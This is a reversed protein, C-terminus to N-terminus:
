LSEIVFAVFRDVRDPTFFSRLKANRKLIDEIMSRIEQEESQVVSEMTREIDEMTPTSRTGQYHSMRRNFQDQPNDMTSGTPVPAPEVRSTPPTSSTPTKVFPESGKDTPITYDNFNITDSDTHLDNMVGVQATGFFESYISPFGGRSKGMFADLMSDADFIAEPRLDYIFSVCDGDYGPIYAQVLANGIDYSKRLISKISEGSTNQAEIYPIFGIQPELVGDPRRNMDKITKFDLNASKCFKKFDEAVYISDEAGDNFILFPKFYLANDVISKSANADPSTINRVTENNLSDVYAFNRASANLRTYAKSDKGRYAEGTCMYHPCDANYGFFADFGLSFLKKYLVDGVTSDMINANTARYADKASSADKLKQGIVFVDSVDQETGGGVLGKYAWRDCITSLTKNISNIMDTSYCGFESLLPNGSKDANGKRRADSIASASYFAGGLVGNPKLINSIGEDGATIEDIVIVVGDKGGLRNYLNPITRVNGRVYILCLCFLLARLYFLTSYNSYTEGLESLMFKPISRSWDFQEPSSSKFYSDYTADYDGNICFMEGGSMGSSRFMSAMDPKNDLYFIPKGSAIAGALINLTMVGKGSRSGACIFHCLKRNFQIDGGLTLISDDDKKGLIISDWEPISKGSSLLSNLARYAFLPEGNVITPKFKHQIDIVSYNSINGVAVVPELVADDDGARDMFLEKIIENNIEVTLPVRRDVDSVRFKYGIVVKDSNPDTIDSSITRWDSVIICTTLQRYLFDLLSTILEFAAESRYGGESLFGRKKLMHCVTNEIIQIILPSVYIKRYEEWSGNGRPSQYLMVDSKNSDEISVKGFAFELLKKYFCYRTSNGGLYSSVLLNMDFQRADSSQVGLKSELKKYIGSIEHTWLKDLKNDNISIIGDPTLLGKPKIIQYGSAFLATYTELIKDTTLMIQTKFCTIIDDRVADESEDYNLLKIFLELDNLYCEQSLYEEISMLRLSVGLNEEIYAKISDVNDGVETVDGLAKSEYVWQIAQALDVCGFSEGECKPFECVDGFLSMVCICVGVYISLECLHKSNVETRFNYAVEKLANNAGVDEGLGGAVYCGQVVDVIVGNLRNSSGYSNIREFLAPLIGSKMIDNYRAIPSKEAM